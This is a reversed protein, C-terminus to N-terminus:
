YYTKVTKYYSEKVFKIDEKPVLDQYIFKVTWNRVEDITYNNLTDQEVEDDFYTCLFKSLGSSWTTVEFSEVFYNDCIDKYEESTLTNTSFLFTVLADASIFAFKSKKYYPIAHKWPKMNSFLENIKKEGIKKCYTPPMGFVVDGKYQKHRLRYVRM